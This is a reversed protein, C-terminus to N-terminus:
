FGEAIKEKTMVETEKFTLSLRTQIPMGDTHTTWGMPAYDVDVRTLVCTSVQHVKENRKGRHMFEIDFTGPAVYMLGYGFKVEPHAHFRFSKIINRVALAERASKPSFFFDYSFERLGVGRFLVLLNENLAFGALGLGVKGAGLLGGITKTIRSAVDSSFYQGVAQQLNDVFKKGEGFASTDEYGINSVYSMSDPIYLSIAQTIRKTRIRNIDGGVGEVHPLDKGFYDVDSTLYSYEDSSGPFTYFAPITTMTGDANNIKQEEQYYKSWVPVNIFFNMYHGHMFFHEIDDPYKLSEFDYGYENGTLFGTLADPLIELGNLILSELDLEDMIGLEALPPASLGTPM